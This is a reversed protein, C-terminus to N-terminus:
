GIMPRRRSFYYNGSLKGMNLIGGDSFRAAASNCTPRCARTGPSSQWPKALHSKAPSFPYLLELYDRDL